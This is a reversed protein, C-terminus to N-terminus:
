IRSPRCSTWRRSPQRIDVAPWTVGDQFVLLPVRSRGLDNRHQALYPLHGHDATIVFLTDRYWPRTRVTEFFRQLLM